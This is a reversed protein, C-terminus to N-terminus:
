WRFSPLGDGAPAVSSVILNMKEVTSEIEQKITELLERIAAIQEAATSNSRPVGDTGFVVSRDAGFSFGGGGPNSEVSAAAANSREAAAAGFNFPTAASRGANDGAGFSFGGRSANANDDTM